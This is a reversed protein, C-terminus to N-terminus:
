AGCPRLSRREKSKPPPKALPFVGDTEEVSLHEIAATQFGGVEKIIRVASRPDLPETADIAELGGPSTTVWAQMVQGKQTANVSIWVSHGVEIDPIYTVLQDWRLDDVILTPTEHRIVVAAPKKAMASSSEAGSSKPERPYAFHPM